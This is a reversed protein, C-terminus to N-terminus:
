WVSQTTIVFLRLITATLRVFLCVSLSSQCIVFLLQGLTWIDSPNLLDCTALWWRRGKKDTLCVINKNAVMHAKTHVTFPLTYVMWLDFVYIPQWFRQSVVHNFMKVATQFFDQFSWATPQDFTRKIIKICSEGRVLPVWKLGLM